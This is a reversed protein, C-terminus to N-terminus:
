NWIDPNLHHTGNPKLHHTVSRLRNQRPPTVTPRTAASRSTTPAPFMKISHDRQDYVRLTTEDVESHPQSPM